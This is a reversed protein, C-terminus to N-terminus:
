VIELRLAELLRELYSQGGTADGTEYEMLSRSALLRTDSPSGSLGRDNFVKASQWDGKYISGLENLWLVARQWYPNRLSEAAALGASAHFQAGGIEGQGLLAYGVWFRASVEFSRDGAARAIEIARNGKAM